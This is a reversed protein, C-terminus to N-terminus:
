SVRAAASGNWWMWAPPNKNFRTQVEYEALMNRLNQLTLKTDQVKSGGVVRGIGIIFITALVVLVGIVIMLEIM